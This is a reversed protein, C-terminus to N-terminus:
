VLSRYFQDFLYAADTPGPNSEPHFQVSFYPLSKHAIGEVSGDNLSRFTVKWDAPLSQEDIAYGHNQSTLICRDGDEDRCPHNHGRHGFKLKYTSAGIALALLQAGLCIGFIPKKKNLAKQVLAVTETCVSPDGPGNSLFLGDYEEETFDENFPVRILRLPYRLFHRLSNQKMGCDVAIVTKPGKGFEQRQIPSVARVLHMANPDFFKKPNSDRPCIVGLQTGKKRLTKTLARTDVRTILPINEQELWDLLSRRADYHSAWLSTEATVVGAAQIKTSEWLIPDPVGYNGILPFTFTLLQGAYSPDTLSEVYGTMGTSFVVEGFYHETQWAPSMGQFSEGSKLLLKTPIWHM